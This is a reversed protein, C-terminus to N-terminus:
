SDGTLHLEVCVVVGTPENDEIWVEGGYQSILTDVLYLGLGTGDSELGKEGKGFLSDRREEPIGPGNDAFKVTIRDATQSASVIVEPDDRDNHQVANNLINKFVAPLMENAAVTVAPITGRTRVTVNEYRGELSEMEALLTERLPTPEPDVSDTSLLTDVLNRVVATLDVAHDAAKQLRNVYEHQRDDASEDLLEAMGRIVQMDNRIDHCVIQNLLELQEAQQELREAYERRETIDRNASIFAEPEGDDDLLPSIVQKVVYREGDERQNIVEGKWVEGASITEWLRQFFDENHVGSNLLNPTRGIVADRDYGSQELFAPNAYEIIGDADTILIGVGANEVARRFTRYRQAPPGDIVTRESRGEDSIGLAGTGVPETDVAYGALFAISGDQTIPKCLITTAEGATTRFSFTVSQGSTLRQIAEQVSERDNSHVSEVLDIRRDRNSGTAGGWVAEHDTDLYLYEEWEPDVVWAVDHDPALLQQLVEPGCRRVDLGGM